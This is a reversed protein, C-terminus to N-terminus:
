AGSSTLFVLLLIWRCPLQNSSLCELGAQVPGRRGVGSLWVAGEHMKGTEEEHTGRLHTRSAGSLPPSLPARTTPRGVAVRPSPHEPRGPERGSAM